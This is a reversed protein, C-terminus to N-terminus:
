ANRESDKWFFDSYTAWRLWWWEMKRALARMEVLDAKSEKVVLGKGGRTTAKRVELQNTLLIEGYTSHVIANRREEFKQAKKLLDLRKAKKAASSRSEEVLVCLLDLKQRFSMSANFADIYTISNVKLYVALVQGLYRELSNFEVVVRGIAQYLEAYQAPDRPPLFHAM